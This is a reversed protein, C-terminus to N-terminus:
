NYNISEVYQNLTVNILINRNKQNSEGIIVYDSVQWKTLDKKFATAVRWSSGDSLTIDGDAIDLETVQKTFAGGIRPGYYLNAVTSTGTSLNSITYTYYSFFCTNPTIILPDGLNWELSLTSNCDPILWQSEDELAFLTGEYSIRCLSHELNQSSQLESTYAPSASSLASLTFLACLITKIKKM